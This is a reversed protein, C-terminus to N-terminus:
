RSESEWPTIISTWSCLVRMTPVHESDTTTLEQPTDHAGALITRRFLRNPPPADGTRLSGRSFTFTLLIANLRALGLYPLTAAAPSRLLCFGIMTRYLGNSPHFKCSVISQLYDIPNQFGDTLIHMVGGYALPQIGIHKGALQHNGASNPYVPTTRLTDSYRM